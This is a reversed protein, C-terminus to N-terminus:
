YDASFIKERCWQREKRAPGCPEAGKEHARFKEEKRGRVGNYAKFDAGRKSCRKQSKTQISAFAKTKRIAHSAIKAVRYNRKSDRVGEDSKSILVTKQYREQINSIRKKSDQDAAQKKDALDITEDNTTASQNGTNRQKIANKLLEIETNLSEVELRKSNLEQSRLIIEESMRAIDKELSSYSEKQKEFAENRKRLKSELKIINQNLDNIRQDALM